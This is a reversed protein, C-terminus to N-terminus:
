VGLLHCVVAAIGDAVAISVIGGVVAATAAVGVGDATNRTGMGAACGVLGVLLGFLASKGLGLTVAFISTASKVHSWYTVAPM